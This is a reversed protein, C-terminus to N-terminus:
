FIQWNLLNSVTKELLLSVKEYNRQNTIDSAPTFVKRQSLICFSSEQQHSLFWFFGLTKKKELSKGM